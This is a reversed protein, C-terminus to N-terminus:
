LIYGAQVYSSEFSVYKQTVSGLGVPCSVTLCDSLHLNHEQDQSLRDLTCAIGESGTICEAPVTCVLHAQATVRLFNLSYKLPSRFQLFAIQIKITFFIWKITFSVFHTSHPCGYAHLELVDPHIHVHSFQTSATFTPADSRKHM